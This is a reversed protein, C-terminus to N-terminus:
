TYVFYNSNIRIINKIAKQRIRMEQEGEGKWAFLTITKREQSSM